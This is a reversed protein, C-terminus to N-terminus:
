CFFFFYRFYNNSLPFSNFRFYHGSFYVVAIFVELLCTKLTLDAVM